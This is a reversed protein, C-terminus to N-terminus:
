TPARQGQIPSLFDLILSCFWSETSSRLLDSGREPGRGWCKVFLLLQVLHHQPNKRFQNTGIQHSNLRSKIVKHRTGKGYEHFLNEKRSGAEKIKQIPKAKELMKKEETNRKNAQTEKQQDPLPQCQKAGWSGSVETLFSQMCYIPIIKGQCLIEWVFFLQQCLDTRNYLSCFSFLQM